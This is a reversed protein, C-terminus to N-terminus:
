AQLLVPMDGTNSVKVVAERQKEDYIVRTGGIMVEAHAVTTAVLLTLLTFATVFIRRM